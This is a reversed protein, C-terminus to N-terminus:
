QWATCLSPRGTPLRLLLALAEKWCVGRFPATQLPAGGAGTLLRVEHAVKLRFVCSLGELIRSPSTIVM